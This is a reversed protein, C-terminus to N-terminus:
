LIVKLNEKFAQPLKREEAITDVLKDVEAKDNGFQLMNHSFTGLKGFITNEVRIKMEEESEGESIQSKIDQEISFNIAKEWYEKQHWYPHKQIHAQLYIREKGGDPKQHEFYFTQSLIMINSASDYDNDEKIFDITSYLLDSLAIFAQDKISFLGAKRFKNLCEGLRKRGERSKVAEIFEIKEEQSILKGEWCNSLFNSLFITTKETKEDEQYTGCLISGLEREIEIVSPNATKTYLSDFKQVIKEYKTSARIFSILEKKLGQSSFEKLQKTIELEKSINKVLESNKEMIANRGSDYEIEAKFYESLANQMSDIREEEM